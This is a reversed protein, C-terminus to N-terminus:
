LRLEVESFGFISKQMDALKRKVYSEAKAKVWKGRQLKVPILEKGVMVYAVSGKLQAIREARDTYERSGETYRAQDLEVNRVMQDFENVSKM